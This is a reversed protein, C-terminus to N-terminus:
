SFHNVACFPKATPGVLTHSFWAIHFSSGTIAGKRVAGCSCFRSIPYWPWGLWFAASAHFLYM